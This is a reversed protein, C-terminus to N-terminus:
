QIGVKTLTHKGSTLTGYQRELTFQVGYNDEDPVQSITYSFRSPDKLTGLGSLYRSLGCDNVSVGVQGCGQAAEQYSGKEFYLLQFAAQARTMDAIRQSDRARARENGLLVVGIVVLLGLIGIIIILEILSLGQKNTKMNNGPVLILLNAIQMLM